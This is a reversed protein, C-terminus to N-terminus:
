VYTLMNRAVIIHVGVTGNDIEDTGCNCEFVEYVTERAGQVRECGGCCNTRGNCEGGGIAGGLARAAISRSNLTPSALATAAFMAIVFYFSRM